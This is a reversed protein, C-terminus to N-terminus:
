PLPPNNNPYGVAATYYHSYNLQMLTDFVHMVQNAIELFAPVHGCNTRIVVM